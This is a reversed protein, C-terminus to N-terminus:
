KKKIDVATVKISPVVEAITNKIHDITIMKKMEDIERVDSKVLGNVRVVIELFRKTTEADVGKKKLKKELDKWPKRGDLVIGGGGGGAAVAITILIFVESWIFRNNGWIIPGEQPYEGDYDWELWIKQTAM